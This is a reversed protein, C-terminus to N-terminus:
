SKNNDFEMHVQIMVERLYLWVKCLKRSDSWDIYLCTQELCSKKQNITKQFLTKKDGDHNPQGTRFIWKVTSLPYRGVTM